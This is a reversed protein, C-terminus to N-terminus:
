SDLMEWRQIQFRGYGQPRATGIGYMRGGYEMLSFLNEVSIVEENVLFTGTAQFNSIYLDSTFMRQNSEQNKVFREFRLADKETKGARLYGDQIRVGIFTLGKEEIRPIAKPVVQSAHNLFSQIIRQPIIVETDRLGDITYFTHSSKELLRRYEEESIGRKTCAALIAAQKKAEGLKPHVDKGIDILKNTEPWFPKAIYGEDGFGLAASVRRISM